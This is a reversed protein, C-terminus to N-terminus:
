LSVAPLRPLAVSGEAVFPLDLAGGAVPVSGVGSVRVAVSQRTALLAAFSPVSAWGLRMPVAVPVAAGRRLVLGAALQGSGAPQGEVEVQWAWRSASLDVPNPNEVRGQVALTVGLADADRPVLSEVVLRPPEVATAPPPPLLPAGACAALVGLASLAALRVARSM